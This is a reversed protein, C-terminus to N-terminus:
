LLLSLWYRNHLLFCDVYEILFLSKRNMDNLHTLQDSRCEEPGLLEYIIGKSGMWVMAM